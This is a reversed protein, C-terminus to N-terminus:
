GRPSWRRKSTEAAPAQRSAPWRASRANLGTDHIGRSDRGVGAGGEDREGAVGSASRRGLGTVVTALRAGEGAGELQGPVELLGDVDARAERGEDAGVAGGDDDALVDAEAVDGADGAGGELADEARAVLGDGLAARRRG